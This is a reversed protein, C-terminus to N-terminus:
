SLSPVGLQPYRDRSVASFIFSCTTFCGAGDGTGLVACSLLLLSFGSSLVRAPSWSSPAPRGCARSSYLGVEPLRRELLSGSVVKLYAIGRSPEGCIHCSEAHM